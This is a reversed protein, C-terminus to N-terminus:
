KVRNHKIKSRMKDLHSTHGKSLHEGASKFLKLNSYRNDAKDGNIHHIVEGKNLKRGIKKEIKIIHEQRWGNPSSEDRVHVYGRKSIYKSIKAQSIKLIQIAKSPIRGKMSRSIKEKSELTHRM